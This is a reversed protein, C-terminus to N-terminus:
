VSTIKDKSLVTKPHNRERKLLTGMAENSANRMSFPKPLLCTYQINVTRTQYAPM